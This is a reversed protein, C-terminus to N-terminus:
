DNQTNLKQIYETTLFSRTMLYRHNIDSTLSSDIRLINIKVGKYYFVIPKGIMTGVNSSDWDITIQIGTKGTIYFLGSYDITLGSTAATSGSFNFGDIYVWDGVAFLDDNLDFSTTTGTIVSDPEPDIYTSADYYYSNNFTSGTPNTDDYSQVDIPLDFANMLLTEKKGIGTGNDFMINVQLDNLKDCINSRVIIDMSQKFALDNNLIISGTTISLENVIDSYINVLTNGKNPVNINWSSGRRVVGIYPDETSAMIYTATTLGTNQNVINYEFIDTTYYNYIDDYTIQRANFKIAPYNKTYDIEVEITDSDVVQNTKYLKILEEHSDLKYKIEDLDTQSFLISELDNIKQNMSLFQEIITMFNRNLKGYNAMVNNYLDFGFLNYISTTDYRLPSMDNDVKYDLNLNYIYSLGDQESNTVLKRTPTITKDDNLGFDDDPNNLFEIGYLNTNISGRGDDIDYYWLIANYEFDSPAEDNIVMANFEDFNKVTSGPLSMKLYHKRNFDIALGDINDSNFDTLKEVYTDEALNDNSNKLVGYYNGSLRIADGTTNSYTKDVTDFYGFYSGPYDSPKTRIPSNLYEAGNIEQQIEEALIPLELGPYYNTNQFIDFLVTPTQGAHPPIMATFETYNNVSTQIKSVAQVDGIYQVLKHYDLKVYVPGIDGSTSIAADLTIETDTSTFTINDIAYSIGSDIFTFTTGTEYVIVKDGIKFKAIESITIVPTTTADVINGEYINIDREKWLYRRFYDRNTYSSENPNQFDSLNKDWDIKHIAPELDIINMKRCWKWFISETPTKNEVPNYFDKERSVRSERYVTDCNAVYNRLGEVLTASYDYNSRPNGDPDWSFVKNGYTNTSQKVFDLVGPDSTTGSYSKPINLLMFKSPTIKIDDQFNNLSFDKIANPFAYFSTGRSKMSKYLPTAM